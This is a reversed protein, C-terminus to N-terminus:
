KIKQIIEKAFYTIIIDAGARKLSLLLEDRVKNGNIWGKEEAAKIMSYEGSVNYAAIPLNTSDKLKKIIDMYAMAPKVMIIDAGEKIDLKAEKLAERCNATDMQYNKRNGFQPKSEAAQRFPGYFSSAYKVTYSMIPINYFKQEDLTNRIANVMGDIMGSPAVMDVGAEAHSIVQKQLFNLTIDNQIENNKIIGCHGHDTYECMCVDSIIYMEPFQTKIDKITQQIIGNKSYAESGTENKDNPIGFLIIRDLGLELLSEVEKLISDPSFHYVGPMSSIEVKLKKGNRVFLPYILDDKQIHNERILRRITDNKRLRSPRLPLNIKNENM